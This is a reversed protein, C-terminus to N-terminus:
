PTAETTPAPRIMRFPVSRVVATVLDALRCDGGGCKDLIAEVAPGDSYALGRGLAYVLLKEVLNREFNRRRPGAIIAAVDAPATFSEGTPLRGVTDTAGGDAGLWQGVANYREFALGLPDMREHCSSCMPDQRHAALMERMTGGGAASGASDLPPVNPPPPPVAIGLLSDLIFLGRKVPSTRTSQSTVMLFSGHTLLGGRHADAALQVLRMEPGEVDPIDYFAALSENLFTERSTILEIAPRNGRLLHAFLLQTEERMAPRVSRHFERENVLSRGRPRLASGLDVPLAEVDRTRLWQGVFNEVFRDAKPDAIMRAVQRDLDAHLRGACAAQLLEDDPMSGWLFFSLRSALAPDALPVASPAAGAADTAGSEPRFLFRPSALMAALATAVGREFSGAPPAASARALDVLRDIVAAEVPGRFTRLALSAITSELHTAAATPDAPPPGATFVRRIPAPYAPAAGDVAEVRAVDVLTEGIRDALLLYKEVLLPSMSLVEGVTDFGYGTDDPPLDDDVPLPLGTLDAVTNAYEFRNLRRLVVHGPEPRAADLKFVDREIFSVLRQRDAAALPPEEPPPMTESRLNRVVTMWTTLDPAEPLRGDVPASALLADLDFGGERSGGGHCGGCHDLLDDRDAGRAASVALTVVLARTAVLAIAVSRAPM